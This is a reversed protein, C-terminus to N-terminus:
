LSSNIYSVDTAYVYNLLVCLVHKSDGFGSTDAKSVEGGGWGLADRNKAKCIRFM